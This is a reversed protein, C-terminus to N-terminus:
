RERGSGMCACFWIAVGDTSAFPLRFLFFRCTTGDGIWVLHSIQMFPSLVGDEPAIRGFCSEVGETHCDHREERWAWAIRFWSDRVREADKGKQRCGSNRYM